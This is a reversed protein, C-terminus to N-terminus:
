RDLRGWGLWDLTQCVTHVIGFLTVFLARRWPPSDLTSKNLAVADLTEVDTPSLNWGLCGLSDQAQEASRCGVLPVVNHQICWNLAVQAMTKNYKAAIDKLNTRLVALESRQIRMMKAALNRQWKEETLKDTLLGQGIPTFGLIHVNLEECVAQMEQLSESNYDLLSYHVQNCVVRVGYKKGAEVARRVQEANANSLGFYQLLGKRHCVAAQQVWYEIPRWHVPSHLLYVDIKNVGLRKCSQRIASEFDSAFFGRWPAPLFKTMVWQQPKDKSSDVSSALNLLRGLRKESTGGGYGEATDFLTVGAQTTMNVISTCTAESLIGMRRLLLGTTGWQLTGIALPVKLDLEGLMYTDKLIQTTM